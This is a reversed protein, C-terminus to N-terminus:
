ADPRRVYIVLEDDGTGIGCPTAEPRFGVIALWRRSAENDPHVACLALQVKLGDQLFPIM